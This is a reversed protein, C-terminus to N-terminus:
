PPGGAGAFVGERQEGVLQLIVLLESQPLLVLLLVLCRSFQLGPQAELEIFAEQLKTCLLIFVIGHTQMTASIAAGEGPRFETENLADEFFPFAHSCGFM